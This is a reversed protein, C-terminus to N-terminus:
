GMRAQKMLVFSVAREMLKMCLHGPEPPERDKINRAASVGM